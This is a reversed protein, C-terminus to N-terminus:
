DILKIIEEFNNNIFTQIDSDTLARLNKSFDFVEFFRVTSLTQFIDKQNKFALTIQNKLNINNLFGNGEVGKKFYIAFGNLGKQNLYGVTQKTISKHLNTPIAPWNKFENLFDAGGAKRTVVDVVIDGAAEIPSTLFEEFRVVEGLEDANNRLTSLVFSGGSMKKPSETLEKILQPAGTKGAFNVMFYDLNDFLDAMSSMRAGASAAATTQLDIIQKVIEMRNTLNRTDTKIPLFGDLKPNHLVKDIKVLVAENLKLLNRGADNLLKWSDLLRPNAEFKALMVSNTGFDKTFVDAADGGLSKLRELLKPYGALWDLQKVIGLLEMGDANELVRVESGDVAKLARNVEGGGNAAPSVTEVIEKCKTIATTLPDSGTMVLMPVVRGDATQLMAVKAIKWDVARLIDGSKGIVKFVIGASTMTTRVVGSLNSGLAFAGSVTTGVQQYAFKSFRSTAKFLLTTADLMDMAKGLKALTGVKAFALPVTLLNSVVEGAGAARQCPNANAYQQVCINAIVNWYGGSTDAAAKFEKIRVKLENQTADNSVFDVFKSGLDPVDKIQGILGNWFGCVFAVEMRRATHNGGAVGFDRLVDDLVIANAAAVVPSTAVFVVELFPNYDSLDPNYFRPPIQLEGITEAIGGLINMLVGSVTPM